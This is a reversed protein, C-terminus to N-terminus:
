GGCPIIYLEDGPMVRRVLEEPYASEGNVLIDVRPSLKGKGAFLDRALAPFRAILNTLCEGITRGDVEASPQEGTSPRFKEHIQVTVPM